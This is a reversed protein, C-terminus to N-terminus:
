RIQHTRGTRPTCRVLSCRGDYELRQFETRASTGKSVSKQVEPDNLIFSEIPSEEVIPGEPFERDVLALYQKELSSDCRDRFFQAM